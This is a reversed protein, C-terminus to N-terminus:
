RSVRKLSKIIEGNLKKVKGVPCPVLKGSIDNMIKWTKRSAGQQNAQELEAIQMEMFRREDELYSAQVQKALDKWREKTAASKRQHYRRKVTHRKAVLTLIADFVWKKSVVNQHIEM